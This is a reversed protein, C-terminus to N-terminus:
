LQGQMSHWPNGVEFFVHVITMSYSETQNGCPLRHSISPILKWTNIFIIKWSMFPTTWKFIAIYTSLFRLILNYSFVIFHVLYFYSTIGPQQSLVKLFITVMLPMLLKLLASELTKYPQFNNLLKYNLRAMLFHTKHWICFVFACILSCMRATQDAGKNNM